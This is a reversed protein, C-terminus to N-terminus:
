CGSESSIDPHAPGTCGLLRATLEGLQAARFPKVLYGAPEVPADGAPPPDLISAIVVPVGALGPEVRLRRAVEWGDIGPLLIDLVVLSPREAAAVQLAAEGTPVGRVEYGLRALHSLLLDRIDGDDEVVLVPGPGSV